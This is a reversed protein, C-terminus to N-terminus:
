LHGVEVPLNTEEVMNTLCAVPKDADGLCVFLVSCFGPMETQKGNLYEM